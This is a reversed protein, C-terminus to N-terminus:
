PREKETLQIEKKDGIYVHWTLYLFVAVNGMDSQILNAYYVVLLVFEAFVLIM